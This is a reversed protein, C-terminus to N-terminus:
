LQDGLGERVHQAQRTIGVRNEKENGSTGKSRRM